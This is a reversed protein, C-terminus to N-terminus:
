ISHPSGDQESGETGEGCECGRALLHGRRRLFGGRHDLLSWRRRFYGEVFSGRNGLRGRLM